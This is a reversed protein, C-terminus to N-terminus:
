VTVHGTETAGSWIPDLAKSVSACVPAQQAGNDCLQKTVNWMNALNNLEQEVNNIYLHPVHFRASDEGRFEPFTNYFYQASKNALEWGMQGITENWTGNVFGSINGGCSQIATWNMELEQVCNQASIMPNMFQGDEVWDASYPTNQTDYCTM